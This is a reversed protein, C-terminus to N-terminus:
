VDAAATFINGPAFSESHGRLLENAQMAKAGAMQLMELVLVGDGCRVSIGHDSAAVITGPSADSTAQAQQAAWVKLRQGQLFTYCGPAPNFARVRRSIVAASETWDILAEQKSIKAAYNAHEDDQETADALHLPLDKLVSTLLAPGIDALQDYLEGSNTRETIACPARALMPGTDLGADMLMVTVGTEADGAEIARQIPAAGRWRPLLSGHVNLCGLSPLDLVTQPLILGYAVVILADLRLEAVSAVAAPDRLSAPQLIPLKYEQALVKVPSPRDKKGRGAPRDPQTLVAVLEHSSNVLAQLHRAAFDPTGAFALRLSSM